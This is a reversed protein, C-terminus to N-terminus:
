EISEEISDYMWETESEDFLEERANTITVPAFTFQPKPTNDQGCEDKDIRYGTITNISMIYSNFQNM